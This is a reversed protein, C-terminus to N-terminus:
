KTQENWEKDTEIWDIDDIEERGRYESPEDAQDQGITEEVGRDIRYSDQRDNTLENSGVSIANSWRVIQNTNLKVEATVVDSCYM